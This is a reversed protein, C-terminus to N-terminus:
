VQMPATSSSHQKQRESSEAFGSTSITLAKRGDIAVTGFGNSTAMEDGYLRRPMAQSIYRLCWPGWPSGPMRVQCAGDRTIFGVTGSAITVSASSCSSAAARASHSASHRRSM